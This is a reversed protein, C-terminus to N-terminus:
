NFIDVSGIVSSPSLKGAAILREYSAVQNRGNRKAYYLAQDAHGIVTTPQDQQQIEVYGISITVKGVQPFTFDAVAQRFRELVREATPADIGNLLTVFEEGGFRYLQDVRRFTKRMLSSVLLLVEDGYLHGFNDNIAKFHDIDIVALWSNEAGLQARREASESPPRNRLKRALTIRQMIQSELLSRNLLGTLRDHDKENLLELFNRFIHVLGSALRWDNDNFVNPLICLVGSLRNRSTVPYLGCDGCRVPPSSQTGDSMPAPPKLRYEAIAAQIEPSCDTLSLDFPLERDDGRMLSTIELEDDILEVMAVERPHLIEFVTSALVSELTDIDRQKTITVISDVLDLSDILGHSDM